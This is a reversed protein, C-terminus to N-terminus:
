TPQKICDACIPNCRIECDTEPQSIDRCDNCLGDPEFENLQTGCKTCPKYPSEYVVPIERVDRVPRNETKIFEAAQVVLDKIKPNSKM